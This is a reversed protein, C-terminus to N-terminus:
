SGHPGVCNSPVRFERIRSNRYLFTFDRLVLILWASIFDEDFGCQAQPSPAQDSIRMINKGQSYIYELLQPVRCTHDRFSQWTKSIGVLSHLSSFPISIICLWHFVWSCPDLSCSFFTEHNRLSFCRLSIRVLPIQFSHRLYLINGRQNITSIYGLSRM